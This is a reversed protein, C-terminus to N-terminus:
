KSMAEYVHDAAASQVDAKTMGLATACTKWQPYMHFFSLAADSVVDQPDIDPHGSDYDRWDDAFEKLAAEFETQMDPGSPEDDLDNVVVKKKTAAKQPHLWSSGYPQGVEVYLEGTDLDVIDATAVESPDKSSIFASAEDRTMEKMAETGESVFGWDGSKWAAFEAQTIRAHGEKLSKAKRKRSEGMPISTKTKGYARLKEDGELYDKVHELDTHASAVLDQVWAPLQDGMEILGCITEAMDKVDSMRSKVMYGEDDMPHGSEFGHLFRQPDKGGAPMMSEVEEKIIKRLQTATLKM